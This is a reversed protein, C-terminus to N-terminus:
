GASTIPKRDASKIPVIARITTCFAASARPHSKRQATNIMLRQTSAKATSKKPQPVMLRMGVALEDPDSLQARNAHFIDTWHAAAGLEREAISSLTDGRRVTIM